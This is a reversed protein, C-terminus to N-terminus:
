ENYMGDILFDMRRYHRKEWCERGNRYLFIVFLIFLPLVLITIVVPVVYNIKSSMGLPPTKTPVGLSPKVVEGDSAGAITVTPKSKFKKNVKIKETTMKTNNTDLSNLLDINYPTKETTSSATKNHSDESDEVGKRASISSVGKRPRVSPAADREVPLKGNVSTILEDQWIKVGDAVTKLSESRETPNFSQKVGADGLLKVTKGLEGTGSEDTGPSEDGIGDSTACSVLLYIELILLTKMGVM